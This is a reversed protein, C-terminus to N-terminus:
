SAEAETTIPESWASVPIGYRSLRSAVVVRPVSGRTWFFVAARTVGIKRAFAAQGGARLIAADLLLHGRTLGPTQETGM